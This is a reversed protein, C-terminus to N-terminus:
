FVGTKVKLRSQLLFHEAVAVTVRHSSRNRSLSQSKIFITHSSCCLRQSFQSEISVEVVIADDLNCTATRMYLSAVM